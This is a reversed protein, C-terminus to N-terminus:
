SPTPRPRRPRSGARRGRVRGRARAPRHARRRGRREDRADRDDLAGDAADLLETAQEFQWARMAQRVIPPLQWEGARTVVQTTSAAPPLVSARAPEGGRAPRGLNAVPRRVDQRDPGRAPRPARALGAARVRARCGRSDLSPRRRPDEGAGADGGDLRGCGAPLRRGRAPGRGLREGPRRARRARRHAPCAGGVGAYGYDEAATENTGVAGWANLPIKAAALEPTLPEGTCPSTSRQRRRSRTGRRSARTRGAIPSCAATSGPTPPRTSSSSRIPTTPSRSGAPRRTTAGPTARPRAASRRPSSSRGSRSGRCASRSRCSRCAASSCAASESPGPRITPGPESRQRRAARGDIQRDARRRPTTTRGSRSSTPSSASRSPSGAARSSRGDPMTPRRSASTARDPGRDHLRAPVRRDRQRGAHLREAFAWAGFTSSARASASRGPRRAAQTRSTSPSPSRGRRARRFAGASTSGSSRRIPRPPPSASGPAAAGPPSRSTRDDGPQVALYASDFYYLRTKTDKLHNVATIASRLTSRSRERSRRRLAHREDADPGAGRRARGPGAAPALSPRRARRRAGPPDAVAPEDNRRTAPELLEPMREAYRTSSRRAAARGAPRTRSRAASGSGRRRSRSSSTASRWRGRWRSASSTGISRGSRCSPPSSRASTRPSRSSRSRSSTTGASSGGIRSASRTVSRRRTTSGASSPSSAPRPHAHRAPRLAAPRRAPPGM